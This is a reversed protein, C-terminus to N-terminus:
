KKELANIQKIKTLEINNTWLYDILIRIASSRKEDIGIDDLYKLGNNIINDPSFNTVDHDQLYIIGRNIMDDMTFDNTGLIIYLKKRQASAHTTRIRKGIITSVLNAFLNKHIPPPLYGLEIMLKYIIPDKDKFFLLAIEYSEQSFGMSIINYGATKYYKFIM